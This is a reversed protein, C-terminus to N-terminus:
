VDDNDVAIAFGLSLSELDSHVKEFELLTIINSLKCNKSRNMEQIVGKIKQLHSM